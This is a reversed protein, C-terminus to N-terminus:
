CISVKALKNNNALSSSQQQIGKIEKKGGLIKNKM